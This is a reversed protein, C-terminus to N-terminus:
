WYQVGLGVARTMVLHLGISRRGQWDLYPLDFYHQMMIDMRESWVLSHYHGFFRRRQRWRLATIAWM